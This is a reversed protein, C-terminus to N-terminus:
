KRKGVPLWMGWVRYLEGRTEKTRWRIYLRRGDNGEVSQGDAPDLASLASREPRPGRQYGPSSRCVPRQQFLLRLRVDGRPQQHATAIRRGDRLHEAWRGKTPERRRPRRPAGTRGPYGDNNFRCA